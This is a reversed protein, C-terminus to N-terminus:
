CDVDGARLSEIEDLLAIQNIMLVREKKEQRSLPWDWSTGFENEMAWSVDNFLSTPGRFNDRRPTPVTSTCESHPTPLPLTATDVAPARATLRPTMVVKQPRPPTASGSAELQLAPSSGPNTTCKSVAVPPVVQQGGPTCPKKLDHPLVEKGTRPDIIRLRHKRHGFPQVEEGTQPNLIKYRSSRRQRPMPPTWAGTGAPCPAAICAGNDIPPAEPGVAVLQWMPTVPVPNLSGGGQPVQPAVTHTVSTPAMTSYFTIPGTAQEMEPIPAMSIPPAQSKQQVAKSAINLQEELKQITERLSNAQADRQALQVETELRKAESDRLAKVLEESKREKPREKPASSWRSGTISGASGARTLNPFDSTKWRFLAKSTTAAKTPTTANSGKDRRTHHNATFSM